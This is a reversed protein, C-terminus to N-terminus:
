NRPYKLAKRFLLTGRDDRVGDVRIFEKKGEKIIELHYIHRLGCDCCVLLLFGPSSVYLPLQSGLDNKLWHKQKKNPTTAM